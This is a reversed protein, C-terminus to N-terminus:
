FFFRTHMYFCTYISPYENCHLVPLLRFTCSYEMLYHDVRCIHDMKIFGEHFVGCSITTIQLLVVVIPDMYIHTKKLWLGWKHIKFYPFMYGWVAILVWEPTKKVIQLNQLSSLTIKIYRLFLLSKWYQSHILTIIYKVSGESYPVSSSLSLNSNKWWTVRRALSLSSNNHSVLAPLRKERGFAIFLM